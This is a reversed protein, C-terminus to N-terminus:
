AGAARALIAEPCGPPALEGAGHRLEGLWPVPLRERLLGLNQRDADPLQARTHSIVVGLVRLARSRAAELTLLTHNLTGLEARAVVLLPLDLARALQAMDLEPGLPVLLGGAGEVLVADAQARARALARRIPELELTRGEARAAVEPAAALRLRYPCLAQLPSDDGAAEALACADAPWLAGDRAACGTEVPKLVRLRRGRARLARALARGVSTKGCGTDTGTIFLAPSV